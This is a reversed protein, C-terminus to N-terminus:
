RENMPVYLVNHLASRYAPRMIRKGTMVEEIRHACWGSIRAIAFLPTYLDQPISLMSYVLGSYLDVNSCIPTELKKFETLMEISMDEFRSVFSFQEGRGSAEAMSRAYKKLMVSRPDSETYVAHGIGYIMGSRDGAEKRLIRSIYDRMDGDTPSTGLSEMALRLMEVVKANAGGHLPGKLSSVASSIASYTDSGTSSVARCVFASNNGGGHEAHLMLMLDLLKAEEQTYSKDERIMRLFNESLSLDERPNHLVLSKGGFYHRKVAYSNAVILPLRGILEISQRMMNELSTDDPTKDFTYLALICRSLNNMINRCPSKIIMDEVFGRPFHRASSLMDQFLRFNKETPLTGFLLLYSVEEYGFTGAAQHAEVIDVVNIGRYYLRGPAPIRQGDEVVYGQVSGIKSVGALVGTGDSNRLGRKMSEGRYYAPDISYEKAVDSCLRSMNEIIFNEEM